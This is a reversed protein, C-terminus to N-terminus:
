NARTQGLALNEIEGLRARVQSPGSLREFLDRAAMRRSQYEDSSEALLRTMAQLLASADRPKVLLGANSSLVM